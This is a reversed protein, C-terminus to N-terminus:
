NSNSNERDFAETWRHGKLFSSAVRCVRVRLDAVREHAAAGGSYRLPMASSSLVSPARPENGRAWLGAEYVDVDSFGKRDMVTRIDCAALSRFAHPEM